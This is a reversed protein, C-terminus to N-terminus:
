TVKFSKLTIVSICDSSAVGTVIKKEWSKFEGKSKFLM